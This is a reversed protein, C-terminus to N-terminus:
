ATEDEVIDSIYHEAIEYWNVESFAANLMDSYLGEIEPMLEEHWEKLWDAVSRTAADRKTDWESSPTAYSYIERSQEAIYDSDAWLGVCWTEYNTWGNYGESM